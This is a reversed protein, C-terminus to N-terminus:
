SEADAPPNCIDTAIARALSALKAYGEDITAVLRAHNDQTITRQVDIPPLEMLLRVDENFYSLRSRIKLIWQQAGPALLPPAKKAITLASLQTPTLAKFAELATITKPDKSPGDYANWVPLIWELFEHDLTGLHQKARFACAALTHRLEHLERFIGVRLDKARYPRRIRDVLTPTILGLGWSVIAIVASGLTDM